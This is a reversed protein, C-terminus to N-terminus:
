EEDQARLRVHYKEVSESCPRGPVRCLADTKGGDPTDVLTKLQFMPQLGRQSVRSPMRVELIAEHGREGGRVPQDKLGVCGTLEECGEGLGPLADDESVSNSM